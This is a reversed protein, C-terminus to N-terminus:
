ILLVCRLLHLDTPFTRLSHPFFSHVPAGATLTFVTQPERIAKLSLDGGLIAVTCSVLPFSRRNVQNKLGSSSGQFSGFLWFYQTAGCELTSNRRERSLLEFISIESEPGAPSFYSCAEGCPFLNRIIATSDTQKQAVIEAFKPASTVQGMGWILEIHVHQKTAVNM